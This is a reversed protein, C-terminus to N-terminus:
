HLPTHALVIASVSAAGGQRLPRAAAVLTAGTTMVDDILVVHQGELSRGIPKPKGYPRDFTSKVPEHLAFAGQMNSMRNERNLTRQPETDRTRYLSTTDIAKFPSLHKAIELAQNFGRQALREAALPIPILVDTQALVAGVREDRLLVKALLRALGPEPTFKYRAILSSWPADFDVAAICDDLGAPTIFQPARAHLRLCSKCVGSVGEFSASPWHNCIACEFPVTSITQNLLRSIFTM